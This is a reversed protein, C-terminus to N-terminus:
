CVSTSLCMWVSRIQRSKGEYSRSLKSVTFVVDDCAFPHVNQIYSNMRVKPYGVSNLNCTREPLRQVVTPLPSPLPLLFKDSKWQWFSWLSMHWISMIIQIWQKEKGPCPVGGKPQSQISKRKRPVYLPSMDGGTNAPDMRPTGVGGTSIVVSLVSLM